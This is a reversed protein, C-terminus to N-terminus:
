YYWLHKTITPMAILMVMAMMAFHKRVTATNPKERLCAVDIATDLNDRSPAVHLKAKGSNPSRSKSSGAKSGENSAKPERYINRPRRTSSMGSNALKATKPTQRIQADVRSALFTWCDTAKIDVLFGRAVVSPRTTRSNLAQPM